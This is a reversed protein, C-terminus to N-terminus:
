NVKIILWHNYHVKIEIGDSFIISNETLCFVGDIYDNSLCFSSITNNINLFNNKLLKLNKM